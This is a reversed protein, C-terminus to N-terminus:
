GGLQREVGFARGERRLKDGAENLASLDQHYPWFLARGAGPHRDPHGSVFGIELVGSV